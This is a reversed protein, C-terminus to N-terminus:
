KTRRDGFGAVIVPHVKLRALAEDREATVTALKAELKDIELHVHDNEGHQQIHKLYERASDREAIVTALQQKLPTIVDYGALYMQYDQVADNVAKQQAERAAKLDDREAEVKALAYGTREIDSANTRARAKWDDREAALRVVEREHANQVCGVCDNVASHAPCTHSM